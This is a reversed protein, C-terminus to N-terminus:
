KCSELNERGILHSVLDNPVPFVKGRTQVHAESM